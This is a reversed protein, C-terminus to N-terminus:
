EKQKTKAYGIASKKGQRPLKHAFIKEQDLLIAVFDRCRNRGIHKEKAARVILQEQSIPDLLPVLDLVDSESQKTKAKASAIEECTAPVWFMGEKSHAWWTERSGNWGIREGRKGAMFKFVGEMETPEIGITARAANTIHASGAGRYQWDYYSFKDTSNHTTKPPHHLIISSCHQRTLIPNLGLRLFATCVEPKTEDGGLYATLPNIIVVDVVFGSTRLAAVNAELEALFAAGALYNISVILANQKARKQDDPSFGLAPLMQAMEIVDNRNDEAQVVVVKLPREVPIGFARKGAGLFFALQVTFVSKGVGSPGVVVCFHERELFRSSGGLLTLKPDIKAASLEVLSEFKWPEEGGVIKAKRIAEVLVEPDTCARLWDNADNHPNPTELIRVARGITRTADDLWKKGADDNQPVLYIEGELDGLLNANQAGRTAVGAISEGEHIGLRDLIAFLDWQSEGAFIMEASDLLGVILRQTSNGKPFYRWEGDARRYHCALPSGNKIVPLAWLGEHSIGILRNTKLWRCFKSSYGRWKALELIHADTVRAVYSSWDFSKATKAQASPQNGNEFSIGFAREIQEVAQPFTGGSHMLLQPFNGEENSAWDRWLGAKKGNLAIKLSSGKAGTTDGMQWDDGLKKGAPFFHECLELAHSRIFEELRDQDKMQDSDGFKNQAQQKRQRARIPQAMSRLVSDCAM